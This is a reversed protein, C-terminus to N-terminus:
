NSSHPCDPLPRIPPTTYATTLDVEAQAAVADASHIIGPLVVSGPPFGSIASGPSVGLDGNVITPGTNTVAAGGLVGFNAATGLSIQAIAPSVGLATSALALTALWSRMRFSGTDHRRDTMASGSDNDNNEPLTSRRHCARRNALSCM